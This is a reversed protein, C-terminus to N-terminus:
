DEVEYSSFDIELSHGCNLCDLMLDVLDSGCHPCKGENLCLIIRQKEAQLKQKEAQSRKINKLQIRKQQNEIWVKPLDESTKNLLIIQEFYSIKYEWGPLLIWGRWNRYERLRQYRRSYYTAPHRESEYKIFQINYDKWLEQRHLRFEARWVQCHPLAVTLSECECCKYWRLNLYESMDRWQCLNEYTVM